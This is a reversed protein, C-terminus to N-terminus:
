IDRVPAQRAGENFIYILRLGIVQNYQDRKFASAGTYPPYFIRERISILSQTYRVNVHLHQWIRLRFDILFGIDNPEFDQTDTYPPRNGSHEEERASVLRSWYGGLGFSMVDKDTYTIYLPIEFYNLRLRYENTLSDDPFQEKQFSGKQSFLTELNIGWNGAFPIIAGVGGNFGLQSWGKIEDGEVQTLNGGAIVTGKIRQGFLSGSFFIAL